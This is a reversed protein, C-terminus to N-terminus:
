DFFDKLRRLGQRIGISQKNDCNRAPNLGPFRWIQGTTSAQVPLPQNVSSVQHHRHQIYPHKTIRGMALVTERM